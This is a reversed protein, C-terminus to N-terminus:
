TLLACLIAVTHLVGSLLPWVIIDLFLHSQRCPSISATGLPQSLLVKLSRSSDETRVVLVNQAQGHLERQSAGVLRLNEIPKVRYM